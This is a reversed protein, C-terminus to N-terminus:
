KPYSTAGSMTLVTKNRQGGVSNQFSRWVIWLQAKIQYKHSVVPFSNKKKFKVLVFDGVKYNQETKENNDEHEVLNNVEQSDSGDNLNDWAGKMAKMAKM